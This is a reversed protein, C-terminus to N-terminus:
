ARRALDHAETPSSAVIASGFLSGQFFDVGWGRLLQATAEDEVWEAVIKLGLHKALDTLTRVFFRDDESKIINQIFVGDIKVFDFDLLRLNRFSTHGAGFDDMAFKIGMQKCDCILQRTKDFDDILTTETIEITLRDAVGAYVRTANALWEPWEPDHLTAVSANVSIQLTPDARLRTLALELVRQDLLRVLGSKEAIPLIDGPVVISGDALRVRLLAEYFATEGSQALVIPQFALEVRRENLASVVSDSIQLAHLRGNDRALSTAYCVLRQANRQRAADLAEEAHQFLVAPSRGDRPAVVAGIRASVSISGVETAFPSHAIVEILRQGSAKAQEVDCNELLVAFKNGAYRAVLDNVRVNTRLRSALGVIMEDGADYGYTRNLAFLNELAVLLIAFPKRSKEPQGLLRLSHEALLARSMAGTLADFQASRTMRREMEHRETIVRVVGHARSPRGDHGAFWKGSDEVWVLPGGGTERPPVLAYIANFFVGRGDDSGTSMVIADFRSTASQAGLREGYARGTSLDVHAFPALVEALTEGWDLRDTAIDWEYSLMGISALISLSNPGAPQQQATPAAAATPSSAPEQLGAPVAKDALHRLQM